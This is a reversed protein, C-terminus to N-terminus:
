GTPRAGDLAGAADLEFGVGARDLPRWEMELGNKWLGAASHQAHLVGPTLDFELTPFERGDVDTVNEEIVPEAMTTEGARAELAFLLALTGSVAALKRRLM